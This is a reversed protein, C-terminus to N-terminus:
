AMLLTQLSGCHIKLAGYHDLQLFFYLDGPKSAKKSDYHLADFRALYSDPEDGGQIQIREFYKHVTESDFIGGFRVEVRPAGPYFISYLVIRLTVERRPGLRVSELNADHFNWRLDPLREEAYEM